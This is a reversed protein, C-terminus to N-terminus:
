DRRRPRHRETPATSDVVVLGDVVHVPRSGVSVGDGELSDGTTLDFRHKRLPSAVYRVVDGDITTWGVLGRSLVSADTYPDRNGICYLEGDVLFVAVAVGEVLAGVGRGPTLADLPCIAISETPLEVVSV